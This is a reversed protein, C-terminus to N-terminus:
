QDTTDEASLWHGAGPNSIGVGAGRRLSALRSASALWDCRRPRHLDRASVKTDDATVPVPLVAKWWNQVDLSITGKRGMASM